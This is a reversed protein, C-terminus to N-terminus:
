ADGDEGIHSLIYAASSDALEPLCVPELSCGNCAKKKVPRPIRGSELMARMGRICDLVKQRLGDDLPVSVRRRPEGYYVFAQEIRCCLMEELCMAQACLQLGDAEKFAKGKKYEVPVPRYRGARGFVPVGDASEIFEVVDCVGAIGLNRSCVSLARVTLVSGRKEARLGAHANEHFLSGRVTHWNDEWRDELAILAWQRKCFAYKQIGSLNLVPYDDESHM